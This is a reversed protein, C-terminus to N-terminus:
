GCEAEIEPPALLGDVSIAWISITDLCQTEDTGKRAQRGGATHADKRTSDLQGLGTYVRKNWQLRTMPVAPRTRGRGMLIRTRTTRDARRTRM